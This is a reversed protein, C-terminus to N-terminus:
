PSYGYKRKGGRPLVEIEEEPRSHALVNYFDQAEKRQYQATQHIIRLDEEEAVGPCDLYYIEGTTDRNVHNLAYDLPLTAHQFSIVKTKLTELDVLKELNDVCIFKSTTAIHLMIPRNQLRVIRNFPKKTMKQSMSRLIPGGKKWALLLHVPPSDKPIATGPKFVDLCDLGSGILYADGGNQCVKMLGQLDEQSLITTWIHAHQVKKSLDPTIPVVGMKAGLLLAYPDLYPAVEVM